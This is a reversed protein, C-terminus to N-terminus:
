RSFEIISIDDKIPKGNSAMIPKQRGTYRCFDNIIYERNEPTDHLNYGSQDDGLFLEGDNNIGCETGTEKDRLWVEM